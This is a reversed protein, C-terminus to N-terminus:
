EAKQVRSPPQVCNNNVQLQRNVIYLYVFAIFLQFVTKTTGEFIIKYVFNPASAKIYYVFFILAMKVDRLQTNQALM